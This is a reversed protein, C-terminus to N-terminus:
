MQSDNSLLEVEVATGDILDAREIGTLLYGEYAVSRPYPWDKYATTEIIARGPIRIAARLKKGIPLNSRGELIVTAGHRSGISFAGLVTRM